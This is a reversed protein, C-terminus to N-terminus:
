VPPHQFYSKTKHDLKQRISTQVQTFTPSRFPNYGAPIIREEEVLVVPSHLSGALIHREEENNQAIVSRYRMEQMCVRLSKLDMNLHAEQAMHLLYPTNAWDEYEPPQYRYLYRLYPYFGNQDQEQVCYVANAAPLSGPLFSVLQTELRAQGLEIHQTELHPLVEEVFEKADPCKLDVYVKIQVPADSTFVPAVSTLPAHSCAVSFLALGVCLLDPLRNIPQKM